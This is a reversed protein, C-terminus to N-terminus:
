SIEAGIAAVRM